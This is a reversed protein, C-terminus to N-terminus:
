DEKRVLLRLDLEKAIKNVLKEGEDSYKWYFLIPKINSNKLINNILKIFGIKAIGNGRFEEKIISSCLYIAEPSTPLKNKKIENILTAEDIRKEIFDNMIKKSCPLMFSYGIIENNNRIINSIFKVNKYIWDRTEKTAAMQSPDKEMEFFEESMESTIDIDKRTVKNTDSSYSINLKIM